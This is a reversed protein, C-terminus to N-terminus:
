YTPVYHKVSELAYGLDGNLSHQSLILMVLTEVMDRYLSDIIDHYLVIERALAMILAEFLLTFGSGPRAWSLEVSKIGCDPCDVRPVPCHLYAKHQFFSLHRWRKENTDYAPVNDRNCKPCKFRSGRPFDLYINIEQDAESFDIEIVQWPEELGLARSFLEDIPSPM